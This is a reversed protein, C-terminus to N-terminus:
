VTSLCSPFPAVRPLVPADVLSGGLRPKRVISSMCANPVESSLGGTELFIESKCPGHLVLGVCAIAVCAEPEFPQERGPEHLPILKTAVNALRIAVLAAAPAVSSQVALIAKHSALLRADIQDAQEGVRWKRWVLGTTLQFDGLQRHTRMVPGDGAETGKRSSNPIWEM